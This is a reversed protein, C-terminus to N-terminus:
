AAGAAGEKSPALLSVAVGSAIIALVTGLLYLNFHEGLAAKLWPAALMKGGVVLLVVALAPM